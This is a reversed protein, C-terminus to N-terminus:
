KITGNLYDMAYAVYLLTANFLANEDIDFHSNHHAALTEPINQNGSGVFAYCGPVRNIFEAFDDGGLSSKRLTIIKDEGFLRKTVSQVEATSKADNILMSTFKKWEVEASGGYMKAISTVLENMENIVQTRTDPNLARLTGEIYAEQAIVNYATGANIKGIGLLVHDMPSTRRTILAQLSVVIQSAIYATDIGLEPTSVHASLGHVKIGFWDVSANNAGEMAMVSGVPVNSKMHIAFSRDAGDLYGENVFVMGGYGIEEAQQFCLRVTGGFSDKNNVLLKAAGLLSAAHADHGCAHMVGENTSTYACIHEEKVPLADIDGRLVITKNGEKEGHIETYVGTEGVRKTELGLAHLEEEIRNATNFEKRSVEPHTHFYRRLEIVDGHIEKAQEYLKEELQNM